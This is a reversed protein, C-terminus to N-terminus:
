GSKRRVSRSRMTFSEGNPVAMSEGSLGIERLACDAASRPRWAFRDYNYQLLELLLAKQTELESATM